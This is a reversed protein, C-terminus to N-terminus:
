NNRASQSKNVLYIFVDELNASTQIWSWPDRQFPSISKQMLQQDTGSIRLHNGFAVLQEIGPLGTLADELPGLLSGTILWTQLNVKQIVEETTGHILLEGFSIYGVRHCRDAEDMYHTSVLTTIGQLSLHHLQQWFDRRAKPDVGATPEDLLLLEPNHLLAAALALRQKWGGSLTHTAQKRQACLNLKELTETVRQERNPLSYLRAIFQLNEEISLDAYLSFHQTMYGVRQKIERSQKLIDFNLCHGQGSDPTLLGCLMRITTTKGGGNPGLFGFIEGKKIQLTLDRVAPKGAFSKWLGKVDIIWNDAM